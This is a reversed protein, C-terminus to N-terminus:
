TPNYGSKEFISLPKDTTLMELLAAPKDNANEFYRQVIRYGIFYGLDAPEDTANAGQYFWNQINKTHMDIIFKQWIENEHQFGYRMHPSASRYKSIVEGFYEALGEAFALDLVSFDEFKLTSHRQHVFHILEHAIITPLQEIPRTNELEWRNLGQTSTHADRAFFETGIVLGGGFAIGGSSFNGIVFYTPPFIATELLSKLNYFANRIQPELTQLRLTNKRIGKYYDRKHNIANLLELSSGIRAAIFASLGPTARNFYLEEIPEQAAHKQAQDFAEWFHAIDDYFFRAEGPETAFEPATMSSYLTPFSERKQETVCTKL